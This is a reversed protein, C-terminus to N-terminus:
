NLAGTRLQQILRNKLIQAQSPQPQRRVKRTAAPRAVAKPPTNGKGALWLEITGDPPSPSYGTFDRLRAGLAGALDEAAARDAPHFYRINTESITFDVPKPTITEM